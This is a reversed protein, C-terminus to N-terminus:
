ALDGRWVDVMACNTCRAKLLEGHMHVVHRSGAREHLDDVNQTCLFLQGGMAKLGAELLALAEHAANPKARILSARRLNYFAHVEEPDRAFAAPTALKM